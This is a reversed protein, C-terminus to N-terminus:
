GVYRGQGMGIAESTKRGLLSSELFAVGDLYQENLRSAFREFGLCSQGIKFLGSQPLPRRKHRGSRFVPQNKGIRFAGLEKRRRM